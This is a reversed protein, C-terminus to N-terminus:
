EQGSIAQEKEVRVEPPPASLLVGLWSVGPNSEAIFKVVMTLPVSLLTGVAGFMWGWFIVSLFIALTSLGMRRGMWAPEVVNGMVVNVTLYLAIIMTTHFADMDLISLLVVPIAAIISGVTPIFNLLFAVLAWLEAYEVELLFLGLWILLATVVSILAKAEMYDNLSHVLDRVMALVSQQQEPINAALKRPFGAADVLLFAVTFLILFVNSLTGSVGGIFSALYSIAEGPHLAAEVAQESVTIGQASLWATIRDLLESFEAHYRPVAQHFEEIASSFMVFMASVIAVILTAVLGAALLPSLGKRRLSAVPSGFIIALFLSLLLPQLIPSAFRAGAIIVVISAALLTTKELNKM